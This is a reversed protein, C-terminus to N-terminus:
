LGAMLDELDSSRNLDIGALAGGSAKSVPLQVRAHRGSRGPEALVTNLGDEILSTLTQGTEAAKKRARRLLQEPLRVTTRM